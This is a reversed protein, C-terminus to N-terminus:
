VHSPPNLAFRRADRQGAGGRMLLGVSMQV